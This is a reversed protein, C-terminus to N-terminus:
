ATTLNRYFGFLKLVEDKKNKFDVLIEDVKGVLDEFTPFYKMHTGYQKIKKWLKEIPNYDPSYSPLQFVTIRSRHLHFFEKLLKSTHYRAGDQVIVLHKRTKTLVDLLFQIYTESTLRETQAKSFFKGTFYEILGFVKYGKRKGSTKVTPATGLKAWTYSLTGWQPFSAEDGFLIYGGTRKAAELVKPWTESLWQKRAKEDLHDSLFSAKQYSFGLNKLLQSIYFASYFAGFKEQILSQIMPSRWCGGAFGMAEPGDQIMKALEQKQSKTLKPPRGTSFGLRLSKFGDLLFEGIWSRVSEESVGLTSAVDATTKGAGRALLALIRQVIRLKGTQRAITLQDQLRSRTIKRIQINYFM